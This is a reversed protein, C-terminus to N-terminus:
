INLHQIGDTINTVKGDKKDSLSKSIEILQELTPNKIMQDTLNLKKKQYKCIVFTKAKLWCCAVCIGCREDM